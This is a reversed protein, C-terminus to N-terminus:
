TTAQLRAREAALGSAQDVEKRLREQFVAKSFTHAHRAIRESDFRDFDTAALERGM